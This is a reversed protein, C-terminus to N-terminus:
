AEAPHEKLVRLIIPMKIGTAKSIVGAPQDRMALVKQVDEDSVEPAPTPQEPLLFGPGTSSGMTNLASQQETEARENELFLQVMALQERNLKEGYSAMEEDSPVEGSAPHELDAPERLYRKIEAFTCKPIRLPLRRRIVFEEAQPDYAISGLAEKQCIGAPIPAFQGPVLILSLISLEQWRSAGLSQWRNPVPPWPPKVHAVAIVLNVGKAYLPTCIKETILYNVVASAGGMNGSLINSEKLSFQKAYDHAGRIAEGKMALELPSINDLVAVTFRDQPIAAVVKNFVDWIGVNGRGSAEETICHYSGFGLQNHISESKSEFDLYLVNDPIDVQAALFSKGVGKRGTIFMVGKFEKPLISKTVM